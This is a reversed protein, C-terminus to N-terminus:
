SLAERLEDRTAVDHKAAEEIRKLRNVEGFLAERTSALELIRANADNLRGDREAVDERLSQVIEHLREKEEEVERLDRLDRQIRTNERELETIRKGSKIQGEDKSRVMGELREIERRLGPVARADADLERIRERAQSLEERTKDREALIEGFERPDAM